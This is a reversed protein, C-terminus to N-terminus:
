YQRVSVPHPRCGRGKKKLLGLPKKYSGGTRNRTSPLLSERRNGSLPDVRFGQIRDSVIDSVLTQVGAMHVPIIKFQGMGQIALKSFLPDVPIEEEVREGIVVIDITHGALEFVRGMEVRKVAQQKGHRTNRRDIISTFPADLPFSAASAVLGKPRTEIIGLYRLVAGVRSKGPTM